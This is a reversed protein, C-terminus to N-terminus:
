QICVNKMTQHSTFFVEYVSDNYCHLDENKSYVQDRWHDHWTSGVFYPELVDFLYCIDLSNGPTYFGECDSQNCLAFLGGLGFHHLANMNQFLRAQQVFTLVPDRSTALPLFMEELDAKYSAYYSGKGIWDDDDEQLKGYLEIDKQFRDQLYAKAAMIVEIRLQNWSGYSCSFSVNGCRFTVGM